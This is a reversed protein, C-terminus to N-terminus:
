IETAELTNVISNVKNLADQMQSFQFGPHRQKYDDLKQCIENVLSDVSGVSKKGTRYQRIMIVADRTKPKLECLQKAISRMAVEDTIRGLECLITQRWSKAAGRKMAEGDAIWEFLGAEEENQYILCTLARQRYFVNIRGRRSFNGEFLGHQEIMKEYDVSLVRPRGRAGKHQNNSFNESLETNVEQREEECFRWQQGYSESYSSQKSNVAQGPRGAAKTQTTGLFNGL